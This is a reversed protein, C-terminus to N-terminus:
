IINRNKNKINTLQSSVINIIISLLLLMEIFLLSKSINKRKINLLRKSIMNKNNKFHKGFKSKIEKKNM